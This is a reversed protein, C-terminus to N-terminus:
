GHEVEALAKPIAATLVEHGDATIAVDDEIRVGIGRLAEPVSRDGEAFYLGPEVTLVMGPELPRAEGRIQYAGVDHTDLGLFHGAHHLTFPKHAGQAVLDAPDGQLVGLKVLGAALVRQARHHYADIPEGPRLGEIAAEQAALVIEYIARQAESFRGSV